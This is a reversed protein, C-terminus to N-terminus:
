AQALNLNYRLILEIVPKLTLKRILQSLSKLSSDALDIIALLRNIILIHIIWM